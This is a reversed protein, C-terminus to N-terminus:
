IEQITNKVALLFTGNSLNLFRKKRRRFIMQQNKWAIGILHIFSNSQIAMLQNNINRLEHINIYRWFFEGQSKWLSSYSKKFREFLLNRRATFFCMHPGLWSFTQKEMEQYTWNNWFTDSFIHDFIHNLYKKFIFLFQFFNNSTVGETGV